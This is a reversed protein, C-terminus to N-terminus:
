GEGGTLRWAVLVGFLVVGAVMAAKRALRVHRIAAPYQQALWASADGVEDGRDLVRGNVASVVAFRAPGDELGPFQARAARKLAIGALVRMQVALAMGFFVLLGTIFFTLDHGSM